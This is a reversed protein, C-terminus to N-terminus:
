ACISPSTCKPEMSALSARFYRPLMTILVSSSSKKGVRVTPLVISKAVFSLMGRVKGFSEAFGSSYRWFNLDNKISEMPM